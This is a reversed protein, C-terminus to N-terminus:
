DTRMAYWWADTDRALVGGLSKMYTDTSHYTLYPTGGSDRFTVFMSHNIDGNKNWDVQLIDGKIMDWVNGLSTTRGSRVTAFTHFRDADTWTWTQNASNYWWYYTSRYWGPSTHPWGGADMIQSVFNTCDTPSFDRYASNYNNWYTVAYNVALSDNLIGAALITPGSAYVGEGLYGFALGGDEESGDVADGDEAGAKTTMSITRGSAGATVELASELRLNLEDVSAPIDVGEIPETIPMTLGNRPLDGLDIEVSDIAWSHGTTRTFRAVYDASYATYDPPPPDSALEAPTWKFHLQTLENYFVDFTDSDIQEISDVFIETKVHTYQEGLEALLARLRPLQEEALDLRHAAGSGLAFEGNRGALEADLEARANPNQATTMMGNRFAVISTLAAEVRHENPLSGEAQGGSAAAPLAMLALALVVLGVSLRKM